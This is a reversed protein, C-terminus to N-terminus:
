ENMCGDNANERSGVHATVSPLKICGVCIYLVFDHLEASCIENHVQEVILKGVWRIVEKYKVM